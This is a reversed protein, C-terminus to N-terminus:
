MILAYTILVATATMVEKVLCLETQGCGSSLEATPIMVRHLFHSFRALVARLLNTLRCM